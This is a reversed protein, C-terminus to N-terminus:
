IECLGTRRCVGECWKLRGETTHCWAPNKDISAAQQQEAKAKVGAPSMASNGPRGPAALPNYCNLNLVYDNRRTNDGSADLFISKHWSVVICDGTQVQDGSVTGVVPNGSHSSIWGAADAYTSGTLGDTASAVGSGLMMASLMVAGVASLIRVLCVGM